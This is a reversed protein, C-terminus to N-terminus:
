RAAAAAGGSPEPSSWGARCSAASAPVAHRAATRAMASASPAPPAAPMMRLAFRMRSSSPAGAPCAARPAM